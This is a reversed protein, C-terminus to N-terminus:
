GELEGDSCSSPDDTSFNLGGVGQTSLTESFSQKLFKEANLKIAEPLLKMDLSSSPSEPVSPVTSM